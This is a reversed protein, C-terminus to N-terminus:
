ASPLRIRGLRSAVEGFDRDDDMDILIGHVSYQGLDAMASSIDEIPFCSEFFIEIFVDEDSMWRMLDHDIAEASDLILAVHDLGVRLLGELIEKDVLSLKTAIGAVVGLTETHEILDKLWPIRLLDEGVFVFHPIGDEVAQDLRAKWGELDTKEGDLYWYTTTADGESLEDGNIVSRPAQDEVGIFGEIEELLREYDIQIESAPQVYKKGMFRMTREMSEDKVYHYLLDTSTQNLNVITSANIILTGLGQGDVMLFLKYPQNNVTFKTAHYNGRPISLDPFFWNNIKDKLKM